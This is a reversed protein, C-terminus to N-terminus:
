VFARRYSERAELVAHQLKGLAAKKTMSPTTSIDWSRVLEHVQAKNLSKSLEAFHETVQKTYAESSIKPTFEEHGYHDREVKGAKGQAALKNIEDTHKKIDVPQKAAAKGIVKKAAATKTKERSMAQTLGRKAVVLGSKEIKLAAKAKELTLQAKAVRSEAKKVAAGAQKVSAFRGGGSRGAPVRPQNPNFANDTDSIRNAILDWVDARGGDDVVGVEGGESANLAIAVAEDGDTRLELLNVLEEIGNAVEGVPPHDSIATGLDELLSPLDDEWGQEMLHHLTLYQDGPLGGEWNVIDTWLNENGVTGGLGSGDFYVAIDAM